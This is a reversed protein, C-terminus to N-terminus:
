KLTPRDIAVGLRGQAEAIAATLTENGLLSNIALAVQIVCVAVVASFSEFMDIVPQGALGGDARMYAEAGKTTPHIHTSMLRYPVYLDRASYAICLQAFNAVYGRLPHATGDPRTAGEPTAWGAALLEDFLKRRREEDFSDVAALADVGVDVVWQLILSHEVVSRLNPTCEHGLGAARALLVLKCSRNIWAWWGFIATFTQEHERPLTVQGADAIDDFAGVLVEIAGAAGESM